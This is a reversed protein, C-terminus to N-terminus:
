HHLPVSGVGGELGSESRIFQELGAVLMAGRRPSCDDLRDLFQLALLRAPVFM